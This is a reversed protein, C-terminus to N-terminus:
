YAEKREKVAEIFAERGYMIFKEVKGDALTIWIERSLGLLTNVKRIEVIDKLHIVIEEPNGRTPWFVLRNEELILRGRQSLIKNKLGGTL